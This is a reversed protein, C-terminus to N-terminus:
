SRRDPLAEGCQGWLIQDRVDPPAAALGADILPSTAWRTILRGSKPCTRGAVSSRELPTPNWESAGTARGTRRRAWCEPHTRAFLGKGARVEADFRFCQHVEVCALRHHDFQVDPRDPMPPYRASYQMTISSAPALIGLEKDYPWHGLRPHLARSAGFEPCSECPDDSGGDCSDVERVWCDGRAWM